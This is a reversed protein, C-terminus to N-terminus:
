AGFDVDSAFSEPKWDSQDRRGALAVVDGEGVLKDLVNIGGNQGVFTIIGVM